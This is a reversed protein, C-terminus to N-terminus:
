DYRILKTFDPGCTIVESWYTKGESVVFAIAMYKENIASEPIEIVDGYFTKVSGELDGVISNRVAGSIDTTKVFKIGTKEINADTEIDFLFRVVAQKGNATNIYGSDKDTTWAFNVWTAKLTINKNVSALVNKGDFTGAEVEEWGAFVYGERTPSAAIPTDYSWTHTTFYRDGTASKYDDMNGIADTGANLDFTVTYRDPVLKAKLTGSEADGTTDWNTIAGYSVSYDSDSNYEAGDIEKVRLQYVSYSGNPSGKWLEISGRAIGDAFTIAEGFPEVEHQSIVIDPPTAGSKQFLVQIKGNDPRFGEGIETADIEFSQNYVDAEFILKANVTADKTNSFDAKNEDATYNSDANNNYLTKYNIIDTKISYEVDPKIVRADQLNEFSYNVTAVGNKDYTLPLTVSKADNITENNKVQLIVVLEKARDVDLIPVDEGYFGEVKIEGSISLPDAWGAYITKDEYIREGETIRTTCAKDTYWGTFLYGGARQPVYDIVAPIFFQDKLVQTEGGNITGGNADLTIDYSNISITAVPTGVQKTGDYYAGFLNTATGPPYPPIAGGDVSVESQFMDTEKNNNVVITGDSLIYSMVEISYYYPENSAEGSWTKWVPYIGSGNGDADIAVPTAALNGTQQSIIHWGLDNGNYGWFTVKVNVGAPYLSKPADEDMKVNFALDFVEPRHELEVNLVITGDELVTQGTVNTVYGPKVCNVTYESQEVDEFTTDAATYTTVDADSVYSYGYDSYNSPTLDLANGTPIGGAESVKYLRFSVDSKDDAADGNHKITLNVKVNVAKEWVATLVIRKNILPTILQEPKFQNGNEDEWYLFTHNEKTPIEDIVYVATEAPYVRGPTIMPNGDTVYAVSYTHINLENDRNDITLQYNGFKTYTDNEKYYVYYVGNDVAASYRGKEVNVLQVYENSDSKKLYLNEGVEFHELTTSLVGNTYFNVTATYVPKTVDSVYAYAYANEDYKGRVMVEYTTDPNLGTFVVKGDKEEGQVNGIFYDCNEDLDTLTLTTTTTSTTPKEFVYVQNTITQTGSDQHFKCNDKRLELTIEAVGSSKGKVIYDTDPRTLEINTASTQASNVKCEKCDIHVISSRGLMDKINIEEGVFVGYKTDQLDSKLNPSKFNSYSATGIVTGDPAKVTVTITGSLSDGSLNAGYVSAWAYGKVAITEGPVEVKTPFITEWDWVWKTTKGEIEIEGATDKINYMNSSNYVYLYTGLQNDWEFTLDSIKGDYGDVEVALLESSRLDNQEGRVFSVIKVSGADAAQATFGFGQVITFIMCFTMVTSIFKKFNKSM